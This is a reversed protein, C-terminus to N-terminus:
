KKDVMIINGTLVRELITPEDYVHSTLGEELAKRLNEFALGQLFGSRFVIDKMNILVPDWEDGLRAPKSLDKSYRFINSVFTELHVLDMDSVEKYSNYIKLLVRKPDKFVERGSAIREIFAAKAKIDDNEMSVRFMMSNSPFYLIIKSDERKVDHLYFNVPYDLIIDFSTDDDFTVKSILYKVWLEIGIDDFVIDSEFDYNQKDIVLECDRLNIIINNDQKLYNSLKIM